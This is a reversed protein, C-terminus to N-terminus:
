KKGVLHKVIQILAVRGITANEKHLFKRVHQYCLGIERALQAVTIGREDIHVSLMRQIEDHSYITNNYEVKTYKM